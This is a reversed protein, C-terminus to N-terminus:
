TEVKTCVPVRNKRLRACSRAPLSDDESHFCGYNLIHYLETKKNRCVDESEATQSTSRRAREFSSALFGKGITILAHLDVSKQTDRRVRYQYHMTRDGNYCYHRAYFLRNINAMVRHVVVSKTLFYLTSMGQNCRCTSYRCGM